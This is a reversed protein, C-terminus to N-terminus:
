RGGVELYVAATEQWAEEWSFRGVNAAGREKLRAVLPPDDLVREIKQALDKPDRPSFYIAGDGCVEPISAVRSAVVPAGCAQAELPPLGFGEYLSPYVLCVCFSYLRRLLAADPRGTFRIRDAVGLRAALRWLGPHDGGEGALVLRHPLRRKQVLHAFARLLCPLNKHYRIGGVYLLYPEEWPPSEGKGPPFFLDRDAGEYIVVVKEAPVRLLRVLDTKTHRSVAIIKAARRTAFLHWFLILPLGAPNSVTRPLLLPILDHITVVCPGKAFFPLSYHPVHLLGGDRPWPYRLATPLHYPGFALPVLRHPTGALMPRYTEEEGLITFRFRPDRLAPRLLSQIYRGVGLYRRM